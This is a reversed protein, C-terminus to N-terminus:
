LLFELKLLYMDSSGNGFSGTSGIIAYGTDFTQIIKQGEDDGFGGFQVTFKDTQQGWGVACWCMLVFFVFGRM